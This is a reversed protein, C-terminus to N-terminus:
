LGFQSLDIGQLPDEERGEETPEAIQALTLTAGTSDAILAMRGFDSDWPERILTGGLETVKNAADDVNAVGLYTQWFSPVQPPFQGKADWIGAFQAGDELATTYNFENGEAIESGLAQTVWGFLEEYFEVAKGYNTTATLEHWVPTGPEGGAVFVEDTALLGFVAGAPDVCLAIEGRSVQAPELIVRGGLEAVREVSNELNETYFYTVWMDPMTAETQHVLGAVPLGQCRAMRYDQEDGIEWSLIESYFHSAKRIDSTSLEVWIPMGHRAEFAPM